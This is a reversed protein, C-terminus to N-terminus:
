AVTGGRGDKKSKQKNSYDGLMAYVAQETRDLKKECFHKFSGCGLIMQSGKLKKFDAQVKEIQPKLAKLKVCLPAFEDVLQQARKEAEALWKPVSNTNQLARSTGNKDAMFERKRVSEAEANREGWVPAKV